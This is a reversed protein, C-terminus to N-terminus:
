KTKMAPIYWYKDLLLEYAKRLDGVTKAERVIKKLSAVDKKQVYSELAELGGSYSELPQDKIPEVLKSKPNLKRLYTRNWEAKKTTKNYKRLVTGSFLERQIIRKDDPFETEVLLVRESGDAFRAVAVSISKEGTGPEPTYDDGHHYNGTLRENDRDRPIRSDVREPIPDPQAYYNYEKPVIQQYLKELEVVTCTKPVVISKDASYKGIYEPLSLPYSNTLSVEAEPGFFNENIKVLSFGQFARCITKGTFADALEFYNLYFANNFSPGINMMPSSVGFYCDSRTLLDKRSGDVMFSQVVMDNMNYTATASIGTHVGFADRKMIPAIGTNWEDEAIMDWSATDSSADYEGKMWLSGDNKLALVGGPGAAAIKVDTAIPQIGNCLLNGDETVMYFVSGYGTIMRTKKNDENYLALIEPFKKVSGSKGGAISKLSHDNDIGEGWGQLTGDTKLVVVASRLGGNLIVASQVGDLIREPKILTTSEILQGGFELSSETKFPDMTTNKPYKKLGTDGWLWLSGDKKIAIFTQGETQPISKVNDMIKRANEIPNYGLEENQYRNLWEYDGSYGDGLFFRMSGWAWLTGDTKLILSMNADKVGTMIQRPAPSEGGWSWLTSGNRHLPLDGNGWVWLSDDNKIAFYPTIKKVDEMIKVFKWHDETTGDGLQGYQNKGWAWVSGDECLLFFCHYGAALQTVPARPVPTSTPEPTPEPTPIPELTPTPTPEATVELTFSLSPLASPQAVPAGCSCLSACILAALSLFAIRNM